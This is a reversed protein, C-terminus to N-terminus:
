TQPPTVDDSVESVDHEILRAMLENKSKMTPLALIKLIYANYFCLYSQSSQSSLTSHHTPIMLGKDISCFTKWCLSLNM